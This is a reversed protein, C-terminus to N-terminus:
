ETWRAAAVKGDADFDVELFLPAESSATSQASFRWACREGTGLPACSGPGFSDELESRKQGQLPGLEPTRSRYPLEASEASHVENLENHLDRLLAPRSPVCGLTCLLAAFLLTPARM